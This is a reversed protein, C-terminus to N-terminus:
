RLREESHSDGTTYVISKIGLGRLTRLCQKCPRAMAPRGSAWRAVYVTTRLPDIVRSLADIEAHTSKKRAPKNHGISLVRKGRCVVSGVKIKCRSSSSVKLALTLMSPIM